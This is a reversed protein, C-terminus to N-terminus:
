AGSFDGGTIVEIGRTTGSVGSGNIDNDSITLGTGSQLYISDIAGLTTAPTITYGKITVNDAAVIIGASIKSAAPGNV